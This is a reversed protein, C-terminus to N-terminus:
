SAGSRPARRVVAGDRPGARRDDLRVARLTDDGVRARVRRSCLPRRGGRCLGAGAPFQASVASTRARSRASVDGSEALKDPLLPFGVTYTAPNGNNAVVRLRWIAPLEDNASVNAVVAALPFVTYVNVMNTTIAAGALITYYAGTAPNKGEINLTM